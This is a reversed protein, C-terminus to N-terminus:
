NSLPILSAFWEDEKEYLAIQKQYAKVLDQQLVMFEMVSLSGALKQVVRIVVIGAATGRVSM